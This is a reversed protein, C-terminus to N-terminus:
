EGWRLREALFPPLGAERIRRMAGDIDYELRVQRVAGAGSDYIAYGARPDSDRPQGVSPVNVIYRAGPLLRIEESRRYRIEDGHLEFAGPFHSHGIFCIRQEFAAFEEAADVPSLVYNWLSPDFPSAHVLLADGRELTYPLGALWEHSEPSLAEETWRAATAADSNFDGLSLRGVAAADHNGLVAGSILPRLREVCENPSAGYGVFDGLCIIDDPRQPVLDALVAELAELNAHIDSVIALKV